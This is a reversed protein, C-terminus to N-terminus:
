HTLRKGKVKNLSPYKPLIYAAPCLTYGETERTNTTWNDDCKALDYEAIAQLFAKCCFRELGMVISSVDDDYPLYSTM